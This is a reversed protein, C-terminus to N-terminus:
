FRYYGKGGDDKILKFGQSVIEEESMDKFDGPEYYTEDIFDEKNIDTIVDPRRYYMKIYDCYNIVFMALDVFRRTQFRKQNNRVDYLEADLFEELADSINNDQDYGHLFEEEGIYKYYNVISFLRDVKYVPFPFKIDPYGHFMIMIDKENSNVDRFIRDVKDLVVKDAAPNYVRSTELYVLLDELGEKVDSSFNKSLLKKVVSKINTEHVLKRKITSIVSYKKIINIVLAHIFDYNLKNDDFFKHLRRPNFFEVSDSLYLRNGNYIPSLVKNSVRGYALDTPYGEVLGKENLYNVLEFESDFQGTFKVLELISTSNSILGSLDIKVYDNKSKHILFYHM